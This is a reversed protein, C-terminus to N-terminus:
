CWLPFIVALFGFVSTILPFVRAPAVDAGSDASGTGSPVEALWALGFQRDWVPPMGCRKSSPQIGAGPQFTPKFAGVLYMKGAHCCVSKTVKRKTRSLNFCCGLSISVTSIDSRGPILMCTDCLVPRILVLPHM